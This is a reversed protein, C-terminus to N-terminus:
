KKIQMEKSLSENGTRDVATVIIRQLGPSTTNALIRDLEVSRAGRNLITYQWRNDYESYVIWHFVDQYNPHTWSITLKEGNDQVSVTPGAPPTKDLWKSSPVLAQKAYPGKLIASM